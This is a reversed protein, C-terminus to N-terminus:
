RLLVLRATSVQGREVFRAFYVGSAVRAGREDRGDWRLVLPADASLQAAVRRVRRGNVDYVELSARPSGTAAAPLRFSVEGRSPNPWALLKHGAGAALPVGPGVGTSVECQLSFVQLGSYDALYVLGEEVVVDGGWGALTAGGILQPALVDSVSLVHLFEGSVYCLSGALTLDEAWGILARSGLLTPDAPDGVDLVHLAPPDADLLFAHAGWVEVATAYGPTDYSGVLWPSSVDSVDVIHLGALADVVYAHAGAAFVDYAYDPTDFSGAVAPATPDSLDLVQLGGTGAAVFLMSGNLALRYASGPHSASAIVAPHIPDSVDVVQIGEVGAAVFAHEGRVVVDSAGGPPLCQGIVAPATPSGLSVVRLSGNAVYALPPAVFLGHADPIAAIGLPVISQALAVDVIDLDGGTAYVHGGALALGAGNLPFSALQVPNAPNSVDLVRFGRFSDGICAITGDLTVDQAGGYTAFTGVLQPASPNAINFVRLSGAVPAPESVTVYAHSGAVAVRQSSQPTPATGVMAPAHPNSVDVVRFGGSAVYAHTGEVAVGYARVPLGLSGALSPAAPNTVDFIELRGGQGVAVAEAVYAYGGAVAVDKSVLACTATGRLFPAAPNSVDVVLLSSGALFAHNGSLVIRETASPLEVGGLLQPSAPNTIDAIRLANGDAVYALSGAVAVDKSVGTTTLKGVWHISAGYDICAVPPSGACGGGFAGIRGCGPLDLLPSDAALRLDGAEPACFQPDVRINGNLGPQGAACESWDSGNGFLDSCAFTFAGGGWCYIADTPGFAIITNEVTIVSSGWSYIGGGAGNSSNAYLTCGSILPQSDKCHFAGGEGAYNGRLVCDTFQPACGDVLQVAGGLYAANSDLTCEVFSPTSGERFYVAGGAGAANREFACRLFAPSAGRGYVAGGESLADNDRFRCDRVTPSGGPAFYMGGGYGQIYTSAHNEEFDCAAITPASTGCYIAGGIDTLPNSWFDRLTFGELVAQPPEGNTFLFGPSGPGEVVCAQPGGASRVVIAKGHFSVNWIAYTGDGVLVTDATAASDIGAQITPADGSGDAEVTWTRSAAPRAFALLMWLVAAALSTPLRFM